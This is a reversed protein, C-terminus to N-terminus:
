CIIDWICKAPPILVADQDICSTEDGSRSTANTPHARDYKLDDAANDWDDGDSDSDDGWRKNTNTNATKTALSSIKTSSSVVQAKKPGAAAAALSSKKAATALSSPKCTVASAALSSAKVSNM